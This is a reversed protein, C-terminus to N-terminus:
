QIWELKALVSVTWDWVINKYNKGTGLSERQMKQGEIPNKPVTISIDKKKL